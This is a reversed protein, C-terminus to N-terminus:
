VHDAVADIVEIVVSGSGDTAGITTTGVSSLDVDPFDPATGFQQIKVTNAYIADTLSEPAPGGNVANYKIGWDEDPGGPNHSATLIFAGFAKQWTPGKERLIASVAPTSLLGNQGIWFRRIGNAVGIKVIVQVAEPNYYRGDGGILLTGGSVGVGQEILADLTAQVFNHLYNGEMFVKTKKRVGSTGPKQGAIPSTKVILPRLPGYGPETTLDVETDKYVGPKLMKPEESTNTITVTGQFVVASSLHVNGKITLRDCGIMSPIGNATARELQGVLKFSSSDLSMVPAAIRGGALRPVRDPSIEYCDSRLLLLDDCKKVPAFRTRPVVVATAGTFSEIAAGMATELQWVPTSASDQPNVTKGNMIMPLPIMGGNADMVEKLKDLRVWLNNTNFFQHKTIDQFCAEDEKACMASERLVMQGDATRTALHGGKKDNETRQCCEMMFPVDQKAFYTLLDVDLTAGLNDSNSVFMYVVGQALLDDLKGSGYLAAYLDGHGPPCWEQNPNPSFEAPQMTAKDIKPIKNQNFALNPDAALVPYKEFFKLTDASTSFSNMLTFRVTKNFTERMKIVQQATFDMFNDGGKVELLSKAKDLGMGTGLGGNLKLVVTQDLLSPDYQDGMKGAIDDAFSHLSAVPTLTSEALMGTEGAVLSKFVNEFAAIPAPGLGEALMKARFPEFSAM